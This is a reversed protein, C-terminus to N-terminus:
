IRNVFGSSLLFAARRAGKVRTMTEMAEFLIRRFMRDTGAEDVSTGEEKRRFAPVVELDRASCFRGLPGKLPTTEMVGM